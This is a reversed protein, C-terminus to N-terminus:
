TGEVLLRCAGGAFGHRKGGSGAQLAEVEVGVRTLCDLLDELGVPEFGGDVVADVNRLDAQVHIVGAELLGHTHHAQRGVREVDGQVRVARQYGAVGGLVPFLEQAQVEFGDIQGAEGRGIHGLGCAVSSGEAPVMVMRAGSLVSFAKLAVM